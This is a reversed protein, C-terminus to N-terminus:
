GKVEILIIQYVNLTPVEQCVLGIPRNFFTCKLRNLNGILICPEPPWTSLFAWIRSYLSQEFIQSLSQELTWDKRFLKLCRM